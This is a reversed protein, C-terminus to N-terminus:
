SVLPPHVLNPRRVCLRRLHYFHPITEAFSCFRDCDTYFGALRLVSLSERATYTSSIVSISGHHIHLAAICM